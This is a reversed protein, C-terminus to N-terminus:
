SHRILFAPRCLSLVDSPNIIDVGEFTWEAVCGHNHNDHDSVQVPDFLNYPVQHLNSPWWMPQIRAERLPSDIGSGAELPVEDECDMTSRELLANRSYACSGPAYDSRRGFSITGLISCVYTILCTIELIGSSVRRIIM